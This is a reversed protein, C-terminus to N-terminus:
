NTTHIRLQPEVMGNLSGSVVHWLARTDDYPASNYITTNLDDAAEQAEALTAFTHLLEAKGLVDCPTSFDNNWYKVLVYFDTKMKNRRKITMKKEM